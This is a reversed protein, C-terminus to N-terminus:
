PIIVITPKVVIIKPQSHPRAPCPAWSPHLHLALYSLDVELVTLVIDFPATEEPGRINHAVAFAMAIATVAGLGNIWTNTQPNDGPYASFQGTSPNFWYTAGDDNPQPEWGGVSPIQPTPGIPATPGPASGLNVAGTQTNWYYPVGDPNTGGYVWDGGAAPNPVNAPTVTATAPNGSSTYTWGGESWTFWALGEADVNGMPSSNVFQYTNAGNIFQAPDQEMWRGLSPSYDREREYYLGTVVDLTMGQYLNNAVPQTRRRRRVADSGRVSKEDIAVM